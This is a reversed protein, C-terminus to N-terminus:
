RGSPEALKSSLGSPDADHHMARMRGTKWLNHAQRKATRLLSPFSRSFRQVRIGSLCHFRTDQPHTLLHQLAVLLDLYLLADAGEFPLVCYTTEMVLLPPHASAQADSRPLRSATM